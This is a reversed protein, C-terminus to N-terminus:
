NSYISVYCDNFIEWDEKQAIPGLAREYALVYICLYWSLIDKDELSLCNENIFRTIDTKIKQIAEKYTLHLMSSSKIHAAYNNIVRQAREDGKGIEVLAYVFQKHAISKLETDFHKPNNLEAAQFQIRGRYQTYIKWQREDMGTCVNYRQGDQWEEESIRQIGSETMVVYIHEMIHLVPIDQVYILEGVMNNQPYFGYKKWEGVNAPVGDVILSNTSECEGKDIIRAYVM